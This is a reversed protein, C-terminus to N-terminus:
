FEKEIEEMEMAMENNMANVSKSILEIMQVLINTSKDTTELVYEFKSANGHGYAKDFAGLIEVVQPNGAEIAAKVMDNSILAKFDLYYNIPSALINAQDGLDVTGNSGGAIGGMFEKDTNVLAYNEGFMINIGDNSYIGADDKKAKSQGLIEEAKAVDTLGVYFGVKPMEGGNMQGNYAFAFKGNFMGMLDDFTIGIKSLDNNLGALQEEQIFPKAMAWVKEWNMNMSFMGIPNNAVKGLVDNGLGADALVAFDDGAKEVIDNFITTTLKGNEFNIDVVTSAGKYMVMYKSVDINSANPIDMKKIMKSYISMFNGMDMFLSIDSPTNVSNSLLTNMEANGGELAAKMMDMAKGEADATVIIANDSYGLVAQGGLDKLKFGNVEDVDPMMASMMGIATQFKDADEIKALVIANGNPDEVGPNFEKMSGIVHIKHIMGQFQAIAQEAQENSGMQKRLTNVLDSKERLKEIDLTLVLMPNEMSNYANAILGDFGEASATGGKKEDEKSEEKGGCSIMTFVLLLSLIKLSLKM